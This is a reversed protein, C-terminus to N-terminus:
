FDLTWHSSRFFPWSGSYERIETESPAVEVPFGEARTVALSSIAGTRSRKHGVCHPLAFVSCGSFGRSFLWLRRQRRWRWWWPLPLASMVARTGPLVPAKGRGLDWRFPARRMKAQPVAANPEHMPSKLGTTAFEVPHPIMSNQQVSWSFSSESRMKHAGWLSEHRKLPSM